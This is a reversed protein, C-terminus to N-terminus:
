GPDSGGGGAVAFVFEHNSFGHPFNMSCIKPNQYCAISGDNLYLNWQNANRKVIGVNSRIGDAFSMLVDVHASIEVLDSRISRINRIFYYRKFKSIYLYNAGALTELSGEFTIIPDIISCENRLTGTFSTLQSIEKSVRNNESSNVYVNVTFSM